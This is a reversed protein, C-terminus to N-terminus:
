KPFTVSVSAPGPLSALTVAEITQTDLIRFSAAPLSGIKVAPAACVLLDSPCTTDFGSGHITILTGGTSPGSSPTVLSIQPQAFASTALFLSLVLAPSKM